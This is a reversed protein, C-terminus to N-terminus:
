QYSLLLRMSRVSRAAPISRVSLVALSVDVKSNFSCSMLSPLLVCM